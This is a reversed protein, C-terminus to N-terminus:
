RLLSNVAVEAAELAQEVTMQGYLARELMGSFVDSLEAYVEVPPRNHAYQQMEAFPLLRPETEMLWSQYAEDTAVSDRVPM